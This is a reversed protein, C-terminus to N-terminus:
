EVAKKILTGADIEVSVARRLIEVSVVVRLAGRTRVVVGSVGALPGDDITVLEGAVYECPAVAVKAAMIRRVADMEADDIALPNLSTPLIQVVGPTQLAVPFECGDDWMRAFVYGPFLPRVTTKTRDSWRVEEAWTPLLPEIYRLSLTQTVAREM